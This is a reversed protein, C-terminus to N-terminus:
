RRPGLLLLANDQDIQFDFKSLFNMGLLGNNNESSYDMVAFEIDYVEYSGLAFRNFRYIPAEVQGGATNFAGTQIFVPNLRSAIQDFYGKELVSLSAGTDVLLSVPTTDNLLGKALFQSDGISTLEIAVAKKELLSIRELLAKARLSFDEIGQAQMLSLKAMDYRSLEINLLGSMLLYEGSDPRHWRLREVVDLGLVWNKENNISAFLATLRQQFRDSIVRKEAGRSTNILEFYGDIAGEHEGKRFLADSMILLYDPSRYRATAVADLFVFTKEWAPRSDSRIWEDARMMWADILSSVEGPYTAAEALASTVALEIDGSDFLFQLDGATRRWRDVDAQRDVSITDPLSRSLAAVPASSESIDTASNQLQYAFWVNLALSICLTLPLLKKKM